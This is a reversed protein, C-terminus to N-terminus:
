LKGSDKMAEDITDVIQSYYEMADQQDRVNILSGCLKVHDWFQRPTFFTQESSALHGIMRQFINFIKYRYLKEPQTKAQDSNPRRSPETLQSSLISNRLAPIMFLQQTVANLYCTAGGNKLGVYGTKSRRQSSPYHDFIGNLNAQFHWNQQLIQRLQQLNVASSKTLEVLLNM